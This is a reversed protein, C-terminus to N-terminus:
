CGLNLFCSQLLIKWLRDDSRWQSEAHVDDALSFLRIPTIGFDQNTFAPHQSRIIIELNMQFRIPRGVDINKEVVALLPRALEKGVGLDILPAKELLSSSDYNRSSVEPKPQIFVGPRFGNVDER